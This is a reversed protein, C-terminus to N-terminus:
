SAPMVWDSARQRAGAHPDIGRPGTAGTTGTRRRNLGTNHTVRHALTVASRGEFKEPSDVLSLFIHQLVDLAENEDRLITAARRLVVHGHKRYIEEISLDAAVDRERTSVRDTVESSVPM